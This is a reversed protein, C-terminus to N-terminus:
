HAMSSWQSVHEKVINFVPAPTQTMGVYLMRGQYEGASWIHIIVEDTFINRKFNVDETSTLPRPASM